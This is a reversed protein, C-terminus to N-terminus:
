GSILLGSISCIRGDEEPRAGIVSDGQGGARYQGLGLIKQHMQFPPKILSSRHKASVSCHVCDPSFDHIM